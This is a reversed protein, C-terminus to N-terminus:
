KHHFSASLTEAGLGTGGAAAQCDGVYPRWTLILAAAAIVVMAGAVVGAVFDTGASLLV